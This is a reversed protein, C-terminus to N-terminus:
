QAVDWWVRGFIDNPGAGFGSDQAMADYAAKQNVYNLSAQSLLQLPARRPIPLISGNTKMEPLALVSSANPYGNRKWVAWGESPQKFANLYTQVSILELAKSEDFAVSSQQLYDTIEDDTLATYNSLKAELAIEDYWELSATVGATYFTEADESTLNRAAFEARMFCFDAYTIVPINVLGNGAGSGENFAPQFLRRQILSITDVRVNANNIKATRARYYKANESAKAEDPSTFSGFYRRSAETTGAALAGQSILVNITSQSYGNPSVFVDLRPDNNDWLFDVLPKSAYIADPNWNGGSTFGSAAKFVWGDSNSQMLDNPNQSLVEQAIAAAKTQDRKIFRTAIKLRLANGARVWAELNGGYYQDFSELAIQPASQETKIVGIAQEVEGDLKTFLSQQDDYAPTMTGGYRAQWAETYPISGYIDSVYFAYYAKLIRSISLMHAYKAQEEVPLKEVLKEMDVLADGVGTYLRGYRNSFRGVNSTFNAANGNVPTVYQMWPMIKTYFDYFAEFDQSHLSLTANLFQNEPPIETLVDPNRNADVYDDDSCSTAVVGLLAFSFIIKKYSIKM